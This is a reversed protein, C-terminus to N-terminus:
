RPWKEHIIYTRLFPCVTYLLKKYKGLKESCKNTHVIVAKFDNVYEM